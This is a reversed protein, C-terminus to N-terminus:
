KRKVKMDSTVKDQVFVFAAVLENCAEISERTLHLGKKKNEESSKDMTLNVEPLKEVEFLGILPDINSQA